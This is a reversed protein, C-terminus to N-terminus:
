QTRLYYLPIAAVVVAFLLQCNEKGCTQSIMYKNMVQKKETKNYKM